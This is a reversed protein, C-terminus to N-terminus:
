LVFLILKLSFANLFVSVREAINATTMKIAIKKVKSILEKGEIFAM